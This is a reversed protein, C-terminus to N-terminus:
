RRHSPQALRDHAFGWGALSTADGHVIGIRAGAVSAVLHMPLAGLRERLAPQARATTLLREIIENSRAVDADSVDAPYAGGCGGNRDDHAIETEVNGRLVPHALVRQSLAAFDGADVDFWHFD